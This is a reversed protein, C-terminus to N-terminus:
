VGLAGRLALWAALVRAAAAAASRRPWCGFRGVSSAREREREWWGRRVRGRSQREEERGSEGDRRGSWEEKKWQGRARPRDRGGCLKWDEEGIGFRGSKEGAADEIGEPAPKCFFVAHTQGHARADTRNRGKGARRQRDTRSPACQWGRGQRARSYTKSIKKREGLRKKEQCSLVL